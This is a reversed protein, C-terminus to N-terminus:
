IKDSFTLSHHMLSVYDAPSNITANSQYIIRETLKIANDQRKERKTAQSLIIGFMEYGCLLHKYWPRVFRILIDRWGSSVM